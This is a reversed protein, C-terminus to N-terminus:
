KYMSSATLGQPASAQSSASDGRSLHTLWMGSPACMMQEAIVHHVDESCWPSRSPSVEAAAAKVIRMDAVQKELQAIRSTTQELQHQEEAEKAQLVMGNCLKCRSMGVDAVRYAQMVRRRLRYSKQAAKNSERRQAAGLTFRRAEQEAHQNLQEFEAAGSLDGLLDDSSKDTSTFLTPDLQM